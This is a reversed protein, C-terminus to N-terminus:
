LIGRSTHWFFERLILSLTAPSLLCLVPGVLSVVAWGWGNFKWLSNCTVSVNKGEILILSFYHLYKWNSSVVKSNGQSTAMIETKNHKATLAATLCRSCPMIHGDLCDHVGYKCRRWRGWGTTAPSSSDQHPQHALLNERSLRAYANLHFANLHFTSYNLKM